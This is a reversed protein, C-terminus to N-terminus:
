RRIIPKASIIDDKVRFDLEPAFVIGCEQGMSARQVDEKFVKISAIKAEGILKEGRQVRVKDGVNFKGEMVRCGAIRFKTGLFDQLIVARGVIKETAVVENISDAVEQVEALLEYIIEYTKMMVGETEALKAVSKDTHTNFGVVFAHCTKALLIDSENINGTGSLILTIEAPLSAKIAELSGENDARLIIPLKKLEPETVQNDTKNEDPNESMVPVNDHQSGSDLIKEPRAPIVNSTSGVSGVPPVESFGMIEVPDGAAAKELKQGKDNVLARIKGVITDIYITDGTKFTGSKVIAHIVPGKKNDIYSEIVVFKNEQNEDIKETKAKGKESEKRSKKIKQTKPKKDENQMEWILFITELLDDIGIKEKASVQVCVVDGGYDETQVGAVSLQKKVKDVSIHPMDIKTIAVLYPIGAAKIHAISEKTQPQVGDNAAVVLIAIDAVDAGRSRMKAFAEHGPTDIFTIKRGKHEIQFAGIKQTIGGAEASAVDTGRITDLLTTKGHDVHGLITIVPTKM